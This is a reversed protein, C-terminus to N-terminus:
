VEVTTGGGGVEECGRDACLTCWPGSQCTKNSAARRSFFCSILDLYTLLRPINM